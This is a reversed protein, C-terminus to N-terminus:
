IHCVAEPHKEFYRQHYEEARYFTSAPVIETVISRPLYVPALESAVREAVAKQEESLYFLASRYQSGVDPGQRNLETPNHFSFFKRVLAEYSVQEPDFTVRVTEAHGTAGTCVQEYTPNERKGGTYGSEADIVGTIDLFAKEIGWFCGAAFLAKETNM